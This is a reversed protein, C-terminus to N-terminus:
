LELTPFIPLTDGMIEQKDPAVILDCCELLNKPQLKAVETHIKDYVYARIPAMSMSNQANRSRFGPIRSRGRVIPFLLDRLSTFHFSTVPLQEGEILIFFNNQDRFSKEPGIVVKAEIVNKLNPVFCYTVWGWEEKQKSGDYNIIVTAPLKNYLDFTTLLGPFNKEVLLKYANMAEKFFVGLLEKLESDSFFAACCEETYPSPLNDFPVIQKKIEDNNIMVSSLSDFLVNLEEQEGMVNLTPFSNGDAVEKVTKKSVDSRIGPGISVSKKGKAFQERCWQDLYYSTGFYVQLKDMLIQLNLPLFETKQSCKPLDLLSRNEKAIALISEQAITESATEDIRGEEVAKNINELADIVAAVIPDTTLFNGEGERQQLSCGKLKGWVEIELAEEYEKDFMSNVLHHIRETSDLGVPYFFYTLTSQDQRYGVGITGTTYPAIFRKIGPTIDTLIRDYTEAFLVARGQVQENLIEHHLAPAHRLHWFLAGQLIPHTLLKDLKKRFDAEKIQDLKLIYTAFVYNRFQDYYFSFSITATADEHRVLVGHVVLENCITESINDKLNDRVKEEPAQEFEKHRNFNYPHTFAHNCIVRAVANLQIKAKSPEEMKELKKKLWTQLLKVETIDNPLKCSSDAYIEATIRLFFPSCCYKRLLGKPNEPLNYFKVYNTIVQDLESESFPHLLYPIIRSPDLMIETKDARWSQDLALNLDTPVGKFKEFRTWEARKASVILKIKGGFRQLQSAFKSISKEFGSVNAEDIADILIIICCKAHQAIEALRRTLESINLQDSFHWNFEDLIEESISKSFAGANFFLAINKEGLWEALACMENTKGVGSEGVLAFASADGEIFREIACRVEHRKLYIEPIYKKITNKRRGRLSNMSRAQQSDSFAKVNNTSYGLFHRLAEYRIRLDEATILTRDNRWFSSEEPFTANSIKRKTITDYISSERGNSLLVFPAIQDLLRAYSLGQVLDEKTLNKGEAKLEVVFLNEGRANKILVDLRGGVKRNTTKSNIKVATKGLNISFSKELQVQDSGIGLATLYPLLIRGRLDEETPVTNLM